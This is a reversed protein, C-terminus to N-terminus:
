GNKKIGVLVFAPTLAKEGIFLVPSFVLTTTTKVSQKVLYASFASILMVAAIAFLLLEWVLEATVTITGRSSKRESMLQQLHKTMRPSLEVDDDGVAACENETTIAAFTQYDKIKDQYNVRRPAAAPSFLSITAQKSSLGEVNFSPLTVTSNVDDYEDTACNISLPMDEDEQQQSAAHDSSKTCQANGKVDEKCDQHFGQSEMQLERFYEHRQGAVEIIYQLSATWRFAEAEDACAFLLSKGSALKITFMHEKEKTLTAQALPFIRVAKLNRSNSSSCALVYNRDDAIDVKIWVYRMSWTYNGKKKLNGCVTKTKLDYQSLGVSDVVPLENM